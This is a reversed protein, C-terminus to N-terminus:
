RVLLSQLQEYSTELDDNVVLQDFENRHKLEEEALKLRSNIEDVNETARNTLRKRLIDISPPMIFIATIHPYKAKLYLAGKVDLDLIPRKNEKQLREIEHKTTGYYNKLVVEYEIFADLAILDEFESKNVFYYHVGNQERSRPHRTTTSISHSFQSHNELLMNILTNKGSGSPASIIILDDIDINMKSAM